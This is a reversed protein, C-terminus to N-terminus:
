LSIGNQDLHGALAHLHDGLTRLGDSTFADRARPLDRSSFPVPRWNRELWSVPSPDLAVFLGVLDEIFM